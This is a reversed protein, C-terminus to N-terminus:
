KKHIHGWKSLFYQKNHKRNDNLRNAYHLVKITNDQYIKFGATYVQYCYDTDEKQSKIYNKDFTINPLKRTMMFAGCVEKRFGGSRKHRPKMTDPFVVEVGVVGISKDNLLRNYTKSAWDNTTFKIDDDLWLVYDSTSQKLCALRNLVVSQKEINYILNYEIDCTQEISKITQDLKWTREYCPICIDLIARGM